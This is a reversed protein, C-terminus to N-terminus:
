RSEWDRTGRAGRVYQTAEIRYVYGCKRCIVAPREITRPGPGPFPQSEYILVAGRCSPCTGAADAGNSLDIFELPKRATANM